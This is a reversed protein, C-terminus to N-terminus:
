GFQFRMFILLYVALYIFICIFLYICLICVFLFYIFLYVLLCFLCNHFVVWAFERQLYVKDRFIREGKVNGKNLSLCVPRM